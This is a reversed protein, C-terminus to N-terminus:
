FLMVLKKNSKLSDRFLNKERENLRCNELLVYRLTTSSSLLGKVIEDLGKEMYPNFSLNMWKIKKCKLLLSGLHEGQRESFSCNRLYINSLTYKSNSLGECITCFGDDMNKNGGLSISEINSCCKLTKGLAHGHNEELNCSCFDISKLTSFSKKLRNMISLGGNSMNPNFAIMFIQIRNCKDLMHGIYSSQHENLNCGTFHVKKLKEGSNSLGQCIDSIGKGCNKNFSINFDEINSCNKLLNGLSKSQIENIRCGSLNLTNLVMSSKTLGDSINILGDGIIANDFLDIKKINKCNGLFNGIEKGCNENLNCEGFLLIQLTSSSRKLAECLLLLEMEPFHNGALNVFELNSCKVLFNALEKSQGGDLYCKCFDIEKLFRWSNELTECLYAFGGLMNVNHSINVRELQHCRKFLRSLSYCQVQDINCDALNIDKIKLSIFGDFINSFKSDSILSTISIKELNLFIKLIDILQDNKDQNLDDVCIKLEKIHNVDIECFINLFPLLKSTIVFKRLSTIEKKFFYLDKEDNIKIKKIFLDFILDAIPNPIKWKKKKCVIYNLYLNSCVIELCFEKLNM